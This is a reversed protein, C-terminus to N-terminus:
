FQHVDAHANFASIQAYVILVWTEHASWFLDETNDWANDMGSCQM